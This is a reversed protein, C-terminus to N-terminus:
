AHSLETIFSLGAVIAATIDPRPAAPLLATDRDCQLEAAVDPESRIVTDRM